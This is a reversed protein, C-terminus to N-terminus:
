EVVKVTKGSIWLDNNDFQVQYWTTGNVDTTDFYEMEDGKKVQTYITEDNELNPQTRLNAFEYIVQVNGIAKIESSVTQLHNDEEVNVKEEDNFKDILKDM